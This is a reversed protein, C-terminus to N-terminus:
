VKDTSSMFPISSLAQFLPTTTYYNVSVFKMDPYVSFQPNKLALYAAPIGNQMITDAMYAPVNPVLGDRIKHLESQGFYGNVICYAIALMIPRPYAFIFSLDTIDDFAYDKTKGTSNLIKSFLDNVTYTPYVSNFQIRADSKASNISNTDVSENYTKGLLLSLVYESSM